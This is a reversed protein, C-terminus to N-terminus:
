KEGEINDGAYALVIKDRPIGAEVLANVLPRDSTDIDIVVSEGLIRAMMVIGPEFINSKDPIAVVAYTQREHDAIPYLVGKYLPGVYWEVEQQVLHAFDVIRDM